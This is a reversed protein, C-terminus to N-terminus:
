MERMEASSKVTDSLARNTMYDVSLSHSPSPTDSVAGERKKYIYIYLIYLIYLFRSPACTPCKHFSCRVKSGEQSTTKNKRLCFVFGPAGDQFRVHNHESIMQDISLASLSFFFFVKIRGRLHKNESPMVWRKYLMEWTKLLHHALVAKNGRVRCLKYPFGSGTTEKIATHFNIAEEPSLLCSHEDEFVRSGGGVNMVSNIFGCHCRLGFWGPKQWLYLPSLSPSAANM